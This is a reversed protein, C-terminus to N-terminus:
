DEGDESGNVLREDWTPEIDSIEEESFEVVVRVISGDEKVLLSVYEIDFCERDEPSVFKKMEEVSPFPGHVAFSASTPTFYYGPKQSM